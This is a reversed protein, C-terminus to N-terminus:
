YLSPSVIHLFKSGNDFEGHSEKRKKKTDEMQVVMSRVAWKRFTKDGETAKVNREDSKKAEGM